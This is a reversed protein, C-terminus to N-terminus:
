PWVVHYGWLERRSQDLGVLGVVSRRHGKGNRGKLDLFGCPQQNALHTHDGGNFPKTQNLPISASTNRSVRDMKSAIESSLLSLLALHSNLAAMPQSISLPRGTRAQSMEPYKQCSM